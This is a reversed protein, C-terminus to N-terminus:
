KSQSLQGWKNTDLLSTTGVHWQRWEQSFGSTFFCRVKGRSTGPSLEPCRPAGRGRGGERMRVAARSAFVWGLPPRCSIQGPPLSELRARSSTGWGLFSTGSSSHPQNSTTSAPLAPEWQNRAAARCFVSCYCKEGPSLCVWHRAPPLKNNKSFSIYTFIPFKCVCGQGAGFGVSTNSKTTSSRNEDEATRWKWATM